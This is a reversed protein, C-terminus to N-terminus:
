TVLINYNTNIEVLTWNRSKICDENILTLEKLFHSYDEKLKVINM